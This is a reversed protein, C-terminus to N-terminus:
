TTMMVASQIPAPVHRARPALSSLAHRVRAELPADPMAECAEAARRVEDARFGLARLWPTV